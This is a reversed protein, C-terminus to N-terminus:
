DDSKVCLDVNKRCCEVSVFPLKADHIDAQAIDLLSIYLQFWAHKSAIINDEHLSLFRM